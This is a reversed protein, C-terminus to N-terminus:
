DRVDEDLLDYLERPHTVTTEAGRLEGSTTRDYLFIATTDNPPPPVSLLTELRASGCFRSIKHRAAPTIEYPSDLFTPEETEEPSRLHAADSPCKTNSLPDTNSRFKRFQNRLKKAYAIRRSNKHPWTKATSLGSPSIDPGAM